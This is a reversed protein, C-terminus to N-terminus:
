ISALQSLHMWWRPSMRMLRCIHNFLLEKLLSNKFNPLRVKTILICPVQFFFQVKSNSADNSGGTGGEDADGSAGQLSMELARTIDSQEDVASEGQNNFIWEVAQEVSNSRASRLAQRAIRESFGMLVLSNVSEENTHFPPNIVDHVNRNIVNGFQLGMSTWQSSNSSTLARLRADIREESNIVRMLLGFLASTSEPSLSSCFDATLTEKVMTYIQQCIKCAFAKVQLQLLIKFIVFLFEMYQVFFFINRYSRVEQMQEEKSGQAHGGSILGPASSITVLLIEPNALQDLVSLASALTPELKELM